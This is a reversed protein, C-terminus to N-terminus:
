KEREFIFLITKKLSESKKGYFSLKKLINNKIKNTYKITNKYGLLSILTAKGKKQGM